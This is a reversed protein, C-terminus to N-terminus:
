FEVTLGATPLRPLLTKTFGIAEGTEPRVIGNALGTNTRNLVNAVDVFLTARRGAARFTRSARVDLRAYRPLRVDNPHDGLFLGDDREVLYGPIPVNSGSRFTAALVSRDSLRYVAALNVAHRQDFDGWFLEHRSPDTYRTRGYSYAAWGSLGTPSQREVRLEVGQATGRLRGNFQDASSSEIGPPSVLWATQDPERLVDRERRAFCTAQWRVSPTLRQGIGVDVHTAQEPERQYGAYVGGDVPETGLFQHSRGTSARVTWNPHLSWETLIWPSVAAQRARTSDAVRLGPAVKLRSTPMWIVHAYASRLWVAESRIDGRREVHQVQTGAELQGGAVASAMDARYAFAGAAGRDRLQEVQTQNNYDQTVASVRQSVATRSGFTSRWALTALTVRGAGELEHQEDLEDVNSRGVLVSSSVQQAASVDYVLKAQADSFGLVTGSPPRPAQIPWDRHSNRIIALWSGRQSGGIPGEGVLTAQMTTVAGRFSTAERSGERLTLDLEAGLHSGHRQAYAGSQLTLRDVGYSSLMAVSAPESRGSATHRLWGTMVGDVVVGIHRYASGRVSFESRFDDGTAAGALTHAARLPDDALVGALERMEQSRLHGSSVANPEYGTGVATVIVRERHVAPLPPAPTTTRPPSHAASKAPRKTRVVQIVHGPGERASLDHPQLLEDLVKRATAARPEVAVRMEPTVIESSFVLRLGRTQLIKLADSLRRGADQDPQTQAASLRALM